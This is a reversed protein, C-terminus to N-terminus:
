SSSPTEYEAIAALVDLRESFNLRSGIDASQRLLLLGKATDGIICFFLGLSWASKFILWDHNIDIALRYAETEAETFTNFDKLILATEAIGHLNAAIDGKQSTARLLQLRQQLLALTEAPCDANQRCRALDLLTDTEGVTDGASRCLRLSEELAANEAASDGKQRCVAAIERLTHAAGMLYDIDRFLTLSHQYHRLAANYDGKEFATRAANNSVTSEQLIESEPKM